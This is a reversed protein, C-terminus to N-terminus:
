EIIVDVHVVNRALLGDAHMVCGCDKDTIARHCRQCHYYYSFNATMCSNKKEEVKRRGKEAKKRKRKKYDEFFKRTGSYGSHTINIISTQACNDNYKTNKDPLKKQSNHNIFNRDTTIQIKAKLTKTSFNGYKDMGVQNYGRRDYGKKDYGRRDYGDTDYKTRTKRHLGKEDFDRHYGNEDYGNKNYGEKNYDNRDYGRRDYGNRDYGEQNYGNRDYGKKDYGKKDYGCHDYGKKDYGCHDYGEKDYLKM